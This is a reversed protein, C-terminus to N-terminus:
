YDCVLALPREADNSGRALAPGGRGRSGADDACGDAFATGGGYPEDPPYRAAPAGHWLTGGIPSSSPKFDASSNEPLTGRRFYQRTWSASLPVSCRSTM